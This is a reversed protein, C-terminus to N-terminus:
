HRRRGRRRGRSGGTAAPLGPYMQGPAAPLGPYIRGPAWPMGPAVPMGPTVGPYTMGPPVGPYQAGQQFGPTMGPTIAPAMGQQQQWRSLAIQRAWLTQEFPQQLVEISLFPPQRWPQFKDGWSWHIAPWRWWPPQTSGPPNFGTPAYPQYQGPYYPAIPAYPQYQGPYNPAIPAYPPGPYPYEGVYQEPGEAFDPVEQLYGQALM